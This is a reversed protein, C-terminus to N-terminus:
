PIIVSLRLGAFLKREDVLLYLSALAPADLGDLDAVFVRLCSFGPRQTWSDERCQGAASVM